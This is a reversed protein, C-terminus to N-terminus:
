WQEQVRMLEDLWQIGVTLTSVFYIINYYWGWVLTIDSIIDITILIAMSRICTIINLLMDFIIFIVRMYGIVIVYSLSVFVLLIQKTNYINRM